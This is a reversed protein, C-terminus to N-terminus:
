GDDDTNDGEGGDDESDDSQADDGEPDDGNNLYRDQTEQPILANTVRRM